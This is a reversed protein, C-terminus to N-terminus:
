QMITALQVSGFDCSHCDTFFAHWSESRSVVADDSKPGVVLMWAGWSCSVVGAGRLSAVTVLLCGESFVLVSFGHGVCLGDCTTKLDVPLLETKDQLGGHNASAPM